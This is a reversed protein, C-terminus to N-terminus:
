PSADVCVVSVDACYTACIRDGSLVATYYLGNPDLKPLDVSAVHGDDDVIHVRGSWRTIVVRGRDAPQIDQVFDFAAPFNADLLIARAAKSAGPPPVVRLRLASGDVEARLLTGDSHTTVFQIEPDAIRRKVEGSRGLVYADHRADAGPNRPLLDTTVWIEGRARDWAVSKPATRFGQPAGLTWEADIGGVPDISVVSGDGEADEGSGYRSALVRGDPGRALENLGPGLEPLREVFGSAPDVRGASEFFTTFYLWGDASALVDWVGSRSDARGVELPPLFKETRLDFRGIHQPGAHLLDAFPDGAHARQASWFASQGFYLIEGHPMGYWACYREAESPAEATAVLLGPTSEPRAGPELRACGQASLAVLCAALLASRSRAARRGAARVGEFIFANLRRQLPERLSPWTGPPRRGRARRCPNRAAAAQSSRAGDRPRDRHNAYITSEECGKPLPISRTRVSQISAPACM